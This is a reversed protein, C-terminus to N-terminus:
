ELVWIRKLKICDYFLHTSIRLFNRRSLLIRLRWPGSSVFCGWVMVSHRCKVRLTECKMFIANWNSKPQRQRVNRQHLTSFSACVSEGSNRGGSHLTAFVRCLGHRREQESSLKEIDQTRMTHMHVTGVCLPRRDGHCNDVVVTLVIFLIMWWLYIYIIQIM